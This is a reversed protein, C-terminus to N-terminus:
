PAESELMLRRAVIEFPYSFLMVGYRCGIAFCFTGALGFAGKNDKFPNMPMIQTFLFVQGARHVFDGACKVIWGRYLGFIGQQTITKIICESMSSFAGKGPGIDSALRTIAFDFPYCM